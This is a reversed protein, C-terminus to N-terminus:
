YNDWIRYLLKFDFDFDCSFLLGCTQIFDLDFGFRIDAVSWICFSDFDFHFDLDFYFGCVDNYECPRCPQWSSLEHVSTRGSRTTRIYDHILFFTRLLM